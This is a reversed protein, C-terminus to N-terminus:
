KKIAELIEEKTVAVAGMKGVVVGAAYNALEAARRKTAGATLALTFVSIVADGAGTVDFVEQAKTAIAYPKKGKEFLRMGREGLTILLSDLDLYELIKAGANEVEEMTMLRDDSLGLSSGDAERIKINRIANETEKLNPTICTVKRYSGFHEVKPDVTVPIKRQFALRATTSVLEPTILGKGYDSLIVADVEALKEAIFALIKKNLHGDKGQGPNEKDIRVVQQHQAIVRTKTITPVTKDFFVGSVDIGKRKLDRKLLQGEFDHGIKGVQIVQAGLVALNHAVNAAGGPKYSFSQELVIPVPAEPSIRNVIGEIYRDLIIDGVVLVRQKHFKSIIEKYINM